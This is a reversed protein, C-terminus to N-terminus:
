HNGIKKSKRCAVSSFCTTIHRNLKSEVMTKNSCKANCIHCHPVTYLNHKKAEGLLGTNLYSGCYLRTKTAKTESTSESEVTVVASHVVTSSRRKKLICYM